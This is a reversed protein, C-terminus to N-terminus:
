FKQRQVNWFKEELIGKDSKVCVEHSSFICGEKGLIRDREPKQTLHNFSPLIKKEVKRNGFWSSGTFQVQRFNLDELCPKKSKPGFSIRGIQMVCYSPNWLNWLSLVDLLIARSFSLNKLQYDSASIVETTPFFHVISGSLFFFKITITTSFSSTKFCRM